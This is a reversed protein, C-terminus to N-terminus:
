ISGADVPPLDSTNKDYSWASKMDATLSMVFKATYTQGDSDLVRIEPPISSMPYTKEVRKTAGDETAYEFTYIPSM